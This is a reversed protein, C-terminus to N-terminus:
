GKRELYRVESLIMSVLKFGGYWFWGYYALCLAMVIDLTANMPYLVARKEKAVQTCCMVSAVLEVIIVFKLVNGANVSNEILAFWLAVFFLANVLLWMTVKIFRKM